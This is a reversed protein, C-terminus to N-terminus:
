LKEIEPKHLIHEAIHTYKLVNAQAETECRWSGGCHRYCRENKNDHCHKVCEKKHSCDKDEENHACKVIYNKETM